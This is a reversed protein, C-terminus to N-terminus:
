NEPRLNRSEPVQNKFEDGYGFQTAAYGTGKGSEVAGEELM